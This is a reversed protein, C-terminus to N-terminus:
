KRGEDEASATEGFELALDPVLRLLSAAEQRSVRLFAEHEHSISTLWIGGDSQRIFLDEPLDPHQWEYLRSTTTVLVELSEPLLQYAFVDAKSGDLLRTGPWAAAVSKTLLYPELRRIMLYAHDAIEEGHRLAFGFSAGENVGAALLAAYTAGMPEGVVYFRPTRIIL